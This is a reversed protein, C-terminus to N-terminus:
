ATKTEEDAEIEGANKKLLGIISDYNKTEMMQSIDDKEQESLFDQRDMMATEIWEKKLEDKKLANTHFSDIHEIDWDQTNLM